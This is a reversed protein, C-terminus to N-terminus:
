NGPMVVLIDDIDTDVNAPGVGAASFVGLYSPFFPAPGTPLVVLPPEGDVSASLNVLDNWMEFDHWGGDSLVSSVGWPGGWVGLSFNTSSSAPDLGVIVGVPGIQIYVGGGGDVPSAIRMRTALYWRNGFDFMVTPGTGYIANEWAGALDGTCRFVGNAETNLYSLTPTGVAVWRGDTIGDPFMSDYFYRLSARNLGAFYAARNLHADVWGLPM